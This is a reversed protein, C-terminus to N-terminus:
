ERNNATNIVIPTGNKGFDSSDDTNETDTRGRSIHHTDARAYSEPVHSQRLHSNNVTVGKFPYVRPIFM